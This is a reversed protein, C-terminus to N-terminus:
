SARIFLAKDTGATSDVTVRVQDGSEPQFKNAEVVGGSTEAVAKPSLQITQKAGSANKIILTHDRKDYKVVQGTIKALPGSGMDHIAVVTRIDDYGCYYVVVHDGVATFTSAPTSDASVIKDFDLAGDPKNAYTFKGESGDDTTVTILKTKPNVATVTGAVAHVAQQASAIAPGIALASLIVVMNFRKMFM